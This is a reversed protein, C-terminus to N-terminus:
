DLSTRRETLIPTKRKFPDIGAHCDPCQCAVAQHTLHVLSSAIFRVGGQDFTRRCIDCKYPFLTDVTQWIANVKMHPTKRFSSFAKSM